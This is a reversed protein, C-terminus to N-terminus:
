GPYGPPAGQAGPPMGTYMYIYIYIHHICYLGVAGGTHRLQSVENKANELEPMGAGTRRLQSVEHKASELEPM